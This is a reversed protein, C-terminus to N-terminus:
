SMTTATPKKVASLGTSPAAHLALIFAAVVALAVVAAVVGRLGTWPARPPSLPAPPLSTRDHSSPTSTPQQEIM